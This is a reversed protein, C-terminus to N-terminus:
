VLLDPIFTVLAPCYTLLMLFVFLMVLMPFIEKIIDGVKVGSVASTVFLLQGYPPSIMGIMMNVCFIVGFHVLDIHFAQVLPLIIPIFVLTITNTELFMGMFIFLLNVLLLFVYKNSALNLVLSGFLAPIKERGFIYQIASACGITIAVMGIGQITDKLVQFLAKPSIARYVLASVVLAYVGALAGAETPTVVGTYICALLIVPTMLAPVAQITFRLFVRIAYTTGYPLKKKKSVLAIYLCLAGAMGMAPIMGGMFLKGVQAGTLSSYLLMIISPPFIPSM